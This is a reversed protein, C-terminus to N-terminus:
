TAQAPGVEGMASSVRDKEILGILGDVHPPQICTFHEGGIRRLTFGGRLFTALGQSPDGGARRISVDTGYLHAPTVISPYNWDFALHLAWWRRDARRNRVLLAFRHRNRIRRAIQLPPGLTLASVWSRLVTGVSASEPPALRGLQERVRRSRRVGVYGYDRKSLREVPSVYRTDILGVYGVGIGHLELDHLVQMTINGGACYGLLHLPESDDRADLVRTTVAAAWSGMDRHELADEFIVKLGWGLETLHDIFAHVRRDGNRDFGCIVHLTPLM